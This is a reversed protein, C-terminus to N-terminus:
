FGYQTYYSATWTLILDNNLLIWVSFCLTLIILLSFHKLKWSLLSYLNVKCKLISFLVSWLASDFCTGSTKLDVCLYPLPSEYIDKQVLGSGNKKFSHQMHKSAVNGTLTWQLGRLLKRIRRNDSVNKFVM